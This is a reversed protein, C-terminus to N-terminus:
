KNLNTYEELEPYETYLRRLASINLRVGARHWNGNVYRLGESEMVMRCQKLLMRNARAADEQTPLAAPTATGVVKYYSDLVKQLAGSITGGEAVLREWTDEYLSVSAATKAGRAANMPKRGAKARPGGHTGM